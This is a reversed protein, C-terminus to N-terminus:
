ILLVEMLSTPVYLSLLRRHSFHRSGGSLMEAQLLLNQILLNPLTELNTFFTTSRHYCNLPLYASFPFVLPRLAWGWLIERKLEPKLEEIWSPLKSSGVQGVFM